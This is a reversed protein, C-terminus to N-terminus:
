NNKGDLLDLGLQPVNRLRLNDKDLSIGFDHCSKTQARDRDVRLGLPNNFLFLDKLMKPSEQRLVKESQKKKKLGVFMIEAM